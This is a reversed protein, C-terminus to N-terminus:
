DYRDAGKLSAIVELLTNKLVFKRYETSGQINNLIPAPLNNIAENVRTEANIANNNLVAEVEYSRFPFGCVGSFAIRIYNNIELAAVTILPYSVREKKVKKIAYYPKEAYISPIKLQMLFEGKGLELKKNFAENISLTRTGGKGAIVVNCDTILPALLAEKYIIRGCINGGLTIKNRVTHDGPFSAVKSLLPILKSEEIKTLTVTAGISLTGKEFGMVNCEPIGKIDIVGETFLDNKRAFTIIETGGSYYLPQKGKLSLEEYINLAEAISTPKYYEFNFAIM